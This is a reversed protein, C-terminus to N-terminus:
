KDAKNDREGNEKREITRFENKLNNGRHGKLQIPYEEGNYDFWETWLKQAKGDKFGWYQFRKQRVTAM